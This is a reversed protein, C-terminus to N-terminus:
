GAKKLEELLIGLIRGYAADSETHAKVYEQETMKDERWSGDYRMSRTGVDHADAPQNRVGRGLGDAGIDTVMNRTAPESASNLDIYAERYEGRLLKENLVAPASFQAWVVIMQGPFALVAAFEDATGPIRAAFSDLKREGLLQSLQRAPEASQPSQAAAVSPTVLVAGALLTSLLRM